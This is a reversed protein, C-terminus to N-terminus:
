FLSNKRRALVGDLERSLQRLREPTICFSRFEDFTSQLQLLFEPRNSSVGYIKLKSQVQDVALSMMLLQGVADTESEACGGDVSFVRNALRSFGLVEAYRSVRDGCRSCLRREMMHSFQEPVILIQGGRGAEASQYIVDLIRETNLKRDTCLWIHLM